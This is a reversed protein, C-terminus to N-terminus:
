EAHFGDDDQYGIPILNNYITYIKEKITSYINIMESELLMALLYIPLTLKYMGIVYCPVHWM